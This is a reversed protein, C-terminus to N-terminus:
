FRVREALREAMGPEAERIPQELYKWQGVPHFAYPNEHVYWAYYDAPGGYSLVVFWKRGQQMLEVRGTSRLLGTDVPVFEEKSRTM